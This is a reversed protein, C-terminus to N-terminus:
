HVAAAGPADKRLFALATAALSCVLALWYGFSHGSSLGVGLAELDGGPVVFLALLLCLAAAAFLGLVVLRMSPIGLKGFLAAALLGAAAIGLLIGFWGFFGHWANLSAGGYDVGQAQVSYSYFPMLSAILMLLGLGVQALDFRHVGAIPSTTPSGSTPLSQPATSGGQPSHDNGTSPPYNVDAPPSTPPQYGPGTPDSPPPPPASSSM